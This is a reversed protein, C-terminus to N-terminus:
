FFFKVYKIAGKNEGYQEGSRQYRVCKNETAFCCAEM